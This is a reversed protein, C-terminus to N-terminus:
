RAFFGKRKDDVAVRIMSLDTFEIGTHDSPSYNITIGGLDVNTMKTEFAQQLSERTPNNGAARLAQVMVKAATYGEMSAPSLTLKAGRALKQAETVLSTMGRENPFVQSVIVGKGRPGMMEIFGLSANNSVTAIQSTIGYDQIAQVGNNVALGAGVFVIVQPNAAKLAALHPKIFDFRVKEENRTAQERDFELVVAPKLKAAALGDNLGDLINKGFGDNPHLIAVNRQGIKALLTVLLEAEQRYPTRVNFVYKKVPSFMSAAGTSPAVLPVKAKEVMALIAENHPTGRTLFISLVGDKEILEKTVAVTQPVKFNDNKTIFVIPRKNIGGQSNVYDFYLNAGAVVELYSPSNPGETPGSGGIVLADKPIVKLPKATKLADPAEKGAKPDVLAVKDRPQPQAPQPQAVASAAAGILMAAVARVITLKM